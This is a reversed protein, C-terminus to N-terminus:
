RTSWTAPPPSDVDTVLSLWRSSLRPTLLPVARRCRGAQQIAAGAAAHRRLGAGRARRGRLGQGPRRGPGPRRGSLPGRGAPRDAPDPHRGVRRWWRRCTPSWSGPSRGPSAATASSSRRGCCPSRCGRRWCGSWMGGPRLHASLERRRRRARRPLRHAGARDPRSGRSRGPRRPMRPEFDDSDLSHVLYYAADSARSTRTRLSDPDSVDGAVPTGAGSYDDPRRTMARVEHGAEVLAQCLRSGIFGSAGTVLVSKM